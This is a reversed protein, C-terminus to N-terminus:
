VYVLNALKLAPFLISHFPADEAAAEAAVELLFFRGEVDDV